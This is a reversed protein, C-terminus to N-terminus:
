SSFNICSYMGLIFNYCSVPTVTIQNSLNKLLPYQNLTNSKLQSSQSVTNSNSTTDTKIFTVPAPSSHRQPGNSTVVIPNTKM